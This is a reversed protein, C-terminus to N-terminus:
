KNAYLEKYKDIQVAIGDNHISYKAQEMDFEIVPLKTVLRSSKDTYGKILQTWEKAKKILSVDNLFTGTYKYENSNQELYYNVDTYIGVRLLLSYLSIYATSATWISSFKVIYGKKNQEHDCNFDCKIIKTKYKFKLAKEITNIFLQLNKYERDLKLIQDTTYTSCPRDLINIVLYSYKDTFHNITFKSNLGHCSFEKGTHATFVIDNLYDKCPSPSQLTQFGKLTKKIFAFGMGSDRGENLSYRNFKNEVIKM